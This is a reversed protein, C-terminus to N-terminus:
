STRWCTATSASITGTRSTAPRCATRARSIINSVWQPSTTASPSCSTTTLMYHRAGFLADSEAVLHRHAALQAESIDILAARDGFVNLWVPSDARTDLALRKAHRGAFLPSDVLTELSTPRFRVEEGDRSAGELATGYAWGPPLRLTAEVPIRAAYYGAPYLLMKEWQGGLLDPTMTMRGQRENVPSTFQFELEIRRAGSAVDVHFAYMGVPGRRWALSRSAATIVLGQMLAIPGTPAHNGPLWQPYFLVLSGASVPITEHVRFVRHDLDTADVHLTLTGPAYPVDRPAPIVRPDAAALGTAPVLLLAILTWVPIREPM